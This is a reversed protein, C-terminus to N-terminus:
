PNFFITRSKKNILPALGPNAEICIHKAVPNNKMLMCSVAGIGAGLELVIDDPQIHEMALQIELYEYEASEIVKRMHPSILTSNILQINHIQLYLGTGAHM